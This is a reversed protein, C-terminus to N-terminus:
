RLVGSSFPKLDLLPQNTVTEVVDASDQLTSLIKRTGDAATLVQQVTLGGSFTAVGAMAERFILQLELTHQELLQLAHPPIHM